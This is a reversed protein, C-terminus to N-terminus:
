FCESDNYVEVYGLYEFYAKMSPYDSLDRAIPDLSLFTRVELRNEGTTNDYRKLDETNKIGSWVWVVVFVKIYNNDM